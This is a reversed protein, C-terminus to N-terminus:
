IVIFYSKREKHSRMYKAVLNIKQMKIVINMEWVCNKELTKESIQISHSNM